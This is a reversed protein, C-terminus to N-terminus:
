KTVYKTEIDELLKNRRINDKIKTYKKEKTTKLAEKQVGFHTILSEPHVDVTYLDTPESYGEFIVRDVQRM